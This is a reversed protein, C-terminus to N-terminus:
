HGNLGFHLFKLIFVLQFHLLNIFGFIIIKIVKKNDTYPWRFRNLIRLGGSFQWIIWKWQRKLNVKPASLSSIVLLFSLNTSSSGLPASSCSSLTAGRPVETCEGPGERQSVNCCWLQWCIREREKEVCVRSSKCYYLLIEMDFFFFFVWIVLSARESSCVYIHTYNGNSIETRILSLKFVKKEIQFFSGQLFHGKVRLFFNNGAALVWKLTIINAIKAECSNWFFCMLYSFRQQYIVVAYPSNRFGLNNKNHQRNSIHNRGTLRHMLTESQTEHGQM